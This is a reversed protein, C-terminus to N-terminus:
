PSPETEPEPEATALRQSARRLLLLVLLVTCAFLVGVAVFTSTPTSSEPIPGIPAATDLRAPVPANEVIEVTWSNFQNDGDASVYAVDIRYMGADDLDDVEFRLTRVGDLEGVASRVVGETDRVTLSGSVVESFFVMDIPGIAPIESRPPPSVEQIEAHAGVPSAGVVLVALALPMLSTALILLRRRM